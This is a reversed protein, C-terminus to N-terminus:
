ELPWYSKEFASSMASVSSLPIDKPIRRVECDGDQESQKQARTKSALWAVVIKSVKVRSAINDADIEFHKKLTEELDSQDKAFVAFLEVSTIGISFLKIAFDEDVGKRDFLFRLDSGASALAAAKNEEAVIIAMVVFIFFLYLVLVALYFSQPLPIGRQM